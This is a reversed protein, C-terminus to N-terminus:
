GQEALQKLSKTWYQPFQTLFLKLAGSKQQHQLLNAGYEKLRQAAVRDTLGQPTTQLRQLLEPITLSWFERLYTNM